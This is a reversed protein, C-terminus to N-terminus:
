FRVLCRYWSKKCTVIDEGIQISKLGVKALQQETGLLLVENKKDNIKLKNKLMWYRVDHVCKEKASKASREDHPRFSLYLQHDDAYAHVTPM